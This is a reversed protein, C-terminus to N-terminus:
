PKEIAGPADSGANPPSIKAWKSDTKIESCMRYFNNWFIWVESTGVRSEVERLRVSYGNWELWPGPSDPPADRWASCATHALREEAEEKAPSCCRCATRKDASFSEGYQHCTYTDMPKKM